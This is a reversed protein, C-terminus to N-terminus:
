KVTLELQLVFFLGLLIVAQVTFKIILVSQCLVLSFTQGREIPDISVPIPSCGIGTKQKDKKGFYFPCELGRAICHIRGFVM